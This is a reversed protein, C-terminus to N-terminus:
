IIFDIIILKNFGQMQSNEKLDANANRLIFARM